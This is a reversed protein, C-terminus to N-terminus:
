KYSYPFSVAPSVMLSPERGTVKLGEHVEQLFSPSGLSTFTLQPKGCSSLHWSLLRRLACLLGEHSKEKQQLCCIEEWKKSVLFSVSVTRAKSALFIVRGSCLNNHNSLVGISGVWHRSIFILNISFKSHTLGQPLCSHGKAWSNDPHNQSSLIVADNLHVSSCLSPLLGMLDM